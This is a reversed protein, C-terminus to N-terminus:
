QFHSQEDLASDGLRCQDSETDFSKHQLCFASCLPINKTRRYIPNHSHFYCLFRKYNTNRMVINRETILLINAEGLLAPAVRSAAALFKAFFSKPKYHRFRNQNKHALAWWVDRNQKACDARAVLASGILQEFKYIRIQPPESSCIQAVFARIVNQLRGRQNVFRIKSQNIPFVNRPLVARLKKGDGCVHHAINQNVM